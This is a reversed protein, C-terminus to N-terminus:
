PPAVEYRVFTGLLEPAELYEEKEPHWEKIDNHLAEEHLPLVQWTRRGGTVRPWLARTGQRYIEEVQERLWAARKDQAPFRLRLYYGVTRLQESPLRSHLVGQASAAFARIAPDSAGQDSDPVELLLGVLDQYTTVSMDKLLSHLLSSHDGQGWLDDAVPEIDDWSGVVSRVLMGTRPAFARSLSTMDRVVQGVRSEVQDIQGGLHELHALIHKKARRLMLLAESRLVAEYKSAIEELYSERAGMVRAYGDEWLQAGQWGTLAIAVVGGVAPALVYPLHSGWLGRTLAFAGYAEATIWLMTRAGIAQGSPMVQLAHELRGRAGTLDPDPIGIQVRPADCGWQERVLGRCHSVVDRALPLAGKGQAVSADLTATIARLLEDMRHQANKRM